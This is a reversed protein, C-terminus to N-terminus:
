SISIVFPLIKGLIKLKLKGRISVPINCSRKLEASTMTTPRKTPCLAIAATPEVPVTTYRSTFRKKPRAMPTLTQMACLIPAPFCFSVSSTNDVANQAAITDPIRTKKRPFQM